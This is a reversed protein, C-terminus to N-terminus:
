LREMTFTVTHTALMDGHRREYAIQRILAALADLDNDYEDTFGQEGYDVKLKFVTKPGM